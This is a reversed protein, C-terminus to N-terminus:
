FWSSNRQLMPMAEELLVGVIDVARGKDGLTGKYGPFAEQILKITLVLRYQTM